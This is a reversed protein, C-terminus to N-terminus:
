YEEDCRVRGPLHRISTAERHMSGLIIIQNGIPYGGFRPAVKKNNNEGGRRERGGEEDCGVGESEVM